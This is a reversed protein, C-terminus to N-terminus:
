QYTRVFEIFQDAPMPKAVYYGQVEDCGLAGLLDIHEKEEAGEAIVDMNLSHALKVISVIIEQDTKDDPADKVFSQDIKLRDIPFSKLYALSSHGTGFDDIAITAGLDRLKHLNRSAVAVDKMLATETIEIELLEAPLKTKAVFEFVYNLFVPSALEEASINVGVRIQLEHDSFWSAASRCAEAVTWVTMDTIQGSKEAVPVFEGPSIWEESGRHWRILAECGVIANTKLCIQPQFFLKFEHNGRATQLWTIIKTNRVVQEKISDTYYVIGGIASKKADHHAIEINTLITQPTSKKPDIVCVGMYVNATVNSGMLDFPDCSIHYLREALAQIDIAKAESDPIYLVKFLREGARAVVSLDNMQDTLRKGAEYIILELAELGFTGVIDGIGSLEIYAVFGHADQDVNANLRELFFTENPLGTRPDTYALQHIKEDAQMRETIDNIIASFYKREGFKWVGLTLEIPFEHGNKHLGSVEVTKGIISHKGTEIARRLGAVHADRYRQPILLTLPQGLIEDVCYGFAKEAGPNWTTLNGEDDISLIATVKSANIISLLKRENEVLAQESFRRQEVEIALDSILQVRAAESTKVYTILLVAVWIAFIALGRNTLVVWPIGANPSLYFGLVTLATAVFAIIFVHRRKPFWIGLSVLAVYPVGGAVGLPLALDFFLILAGLAAALISLKLRKQEIMISKIARPSKWPPHLFYQGVKNLHTLESM